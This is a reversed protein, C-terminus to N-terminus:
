MEVNYGAIPLTDSENFKFNGSQSNSDDIKKDISKLIEADVAGTTFNKGTSETLTGSSAVDSSAFVSSSGGVTGFLITYSQGPKSANNFKYSGNANNFAVPIFGAGDINSKFISGSTISADSSATIQGEIINGISGATKLHQYFSLSENGTTSDSTAGWSIFGDGNGNQQNSNIISSANVIDGPLFQYTNKFSFSAEKITNMATIISNAKAVGIIKSFTAFSTVLLGMIILVVALEPISAVGDSKSKVILNNVSKKDLNKIDIFLRKLKKISFIKM